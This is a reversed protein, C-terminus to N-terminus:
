QVLVVLMISKSPHHMTAKSINAMMPDSICKDTAEERCKLVHLTITKKHQWQLLHAIVKSNSKKNKQYKLIVGLLM